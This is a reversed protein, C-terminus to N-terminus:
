HLSLPSQALINSQTGSTSSSVESCPASVVAEPHNIKLWAVYGGDRLDYGEEYRPKYLSQQESTFPPGGSLPEETNPVKQPCDAKSPALQRDSVEGPNLRYVGCNRFRSMINLPTFSAPWAEAVLSEIVDTTIM